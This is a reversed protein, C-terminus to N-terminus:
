IKRWIYIPEAKSSTNDKTGQGFGTGKRLGATGIFELGPLRSAIDLAPKCVITKTRLNDDLNVALTGGRKLVRTSEELVPILFVAIYDEVNDVKLRIQGQAEKTTEGYNELNFYPPSSVILDFSQSPLTPLVNEAPGQHLTLDKDSGIFEHQRKCASISGKRPDILHIHTVSSSAMFGTLRDGWGASFDLVVKSGLTDCLYKSVTARFHTVTMLASNSRITDYVLEDKTFTRNKTVRDIRSSAGRLFTPDRKWRDLVDQGSKWWVTSTRVRHPWHMREGLLQGARVSRFLFLKKPTPCGTRVEWRTHREVMDEPHLDCLKQFDERVLWDPKEYVFVGGRVNM